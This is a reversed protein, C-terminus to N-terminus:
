YTSCLLRKRAWVELEKILEKDIGKDRLKQLQDQWDDYGVVQTKLNYLLTSGSDSESYFKDTLKM